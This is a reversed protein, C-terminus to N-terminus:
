ATNLDHFIQQLAAEIFQVEAEAVTRFDLRVEDQVIRTFIPPQYQRLKLALAEATLTKSKLAIAKTAINKAPLSGSGLQSYDDVVRIECHEKLIPTLRRQFRKTRQTLESLPLMLLRLIPHSHPLQEPDLYLKLTAELAAYTLKGCRLARTLPNKKMLDIYKKEGIIIGCQPGGLIKDGSFTIVAAGAKVSAQVMPESPLGYEQFDILCGSGIDDMVPLRQKRGLTVLQDLPVESSFGIIQYNSTHVRLLLATNPNIATVYDRLHTKNTTGVEIMKAGSREMVEPIRFSGGIEILQGRSIIVEKGMALTNLALLTAAANNNVVLAAEAGTLYKLLGEVHQYRDGRKGTTRNIALTCYNEIAQAVAAQAAPTLPARGLATHLIIGAANIARTVSPEFLQQIQRAIKEALKNPDTQLQSVTEETAALIEARLQQLAQRSYEVMVPQPYSGTLAALPALNLLKPLGIIQDLCAQKAASIKESSTNM